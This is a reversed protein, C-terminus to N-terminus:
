KRVMGNWRTDTDVGAIEDWLIGPVTTHGNQLLKVFGGGHAAYLFDGRHLLEVQRYVGSKLLVAFGDEVRQFLTM